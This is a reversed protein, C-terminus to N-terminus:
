PLPEVATAVGYEYTVRYKKEGAAHDVVRYADGTGSLGRVLVGYGAAFTIQNETMGPEVQGTEIKRWAEPTWDKYVERPDQILFIEDVYFTEGSAIAVACRKGGREFELWVQKQREFARVPVLEELSALTERGPECAWRHGARVWLRKGVLERADALSRVYSRPPAVYYDPSLPLPKAKPPTYSAQRARELFVVALYGGALILGVALARQTYRQWKPKESM